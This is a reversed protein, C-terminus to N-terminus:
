RRVVAPHAADNGQPAGSSRGTPGGPPKEKWAQLLVPADSRRLPPRARERRDGRFARFANM